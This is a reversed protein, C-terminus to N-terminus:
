SQSKKPSNTLCSVLGEHYDEALCSWIGWHFSPGQLSHSINLIYLVNNIKHIYNLYNGDFPCKM